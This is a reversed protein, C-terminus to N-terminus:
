LKQQLFRITGFNTAHPVPPLAALNHNQRGPPNWAFDPRQDHALPDFNVGGDDAVLAALKVLASEFRGEGM